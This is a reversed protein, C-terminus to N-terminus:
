SRSCTALTLAAADALRRLKDLDGLEGALQVLEDLADSAGRILSSAFCLGIV